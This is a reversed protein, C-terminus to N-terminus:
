LKKRLGIILAKLSDSRKYKLDIDKGRKGRTEMDIKIFISAGRTIRVLVEYKEKEKETPIYMEVEDAVINYEAQLPAARWKFSSPTILAVHNKMYATAVKMEKAILSDITTAEDSGATAASSVVLLVISLAAFGCILRAVQNSKKM